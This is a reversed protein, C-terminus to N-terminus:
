FHWVFAKRLSDLSNVLPERPPLIDRICPTYILLSHELIDKNFRSTAYLEKTFKLDSPTFGPAYPAFIASTMSTHSGAKRATPQAVKFDMNFNDYIIMSPPLHKNRQAASKTLMNVMNRTTQTSVSVGLTPSMWIWCRNCLGFMGRRLNGVVNAVNM